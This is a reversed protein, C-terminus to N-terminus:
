SRRHSSVVARTQALVEYDAAGRELAKRIASRERPRAQVAEWAERIDEPRDALLVELLSTAQQVDKRAKTRESVPRREALWLKHLAFRGPRPVNLLVGGAGLVLAHAPVESVYGIMPLPTAAVGGKVLKSVFSGQAPLQQQSLEAQARISQDLLEAYLTQVTEPLREIPM